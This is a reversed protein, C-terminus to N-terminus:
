QQMKIAMPFVINNELHIHHHLNEEFTKLMELLLRYSGCADEPATYQNTLQSIKRFREGEADHESMMVAIPSSVSGCHFFPVPQRHVKANYLEYIYPFLVMEEKELHSNLDEWSANFLDRVALLSPHNNGHVKCVKDLLHLIELGQIRINRHHFKLIYDVLLDMPWNKFDITSPVETASCSLSLEDELKGIEVGATRCAETFPTAGGCCFDIGYKNFVKANDFRDAVIEGVTMQRYDKM